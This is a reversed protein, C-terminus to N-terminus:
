SGQEPSSSNSYISSPQHSSYSGESRRASRKTTSSHWSTQHVTLATQPCSTTVGGRKCHNLVRPLNTCLLCSFAADDNHLGEYLKGYLLTNRTATNLDDKSYAVQEIHRIYDAVSEGSKQLSHSFEQAAMKKSGPDLWSHLAEIAMPHDQQVVQDLLRWEQLAWGRLYGPLQM